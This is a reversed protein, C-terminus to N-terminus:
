DSCQTSRYSKSVMFKMTYPEHPMHITLNVLADAAPEQDAADEGEGVAQKALEQSPEATPASDAAKGNPADTQTPAAM